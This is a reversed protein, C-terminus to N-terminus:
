KLTQIYGCPKTSFPNFSLKLALWLSWGPSSMNETVAQFRMESAAEACKSFQSPKSSPLSKLAGFILPLNKILM